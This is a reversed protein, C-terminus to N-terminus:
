PPNVPPPQDGAVLTANNQNRVMNLLGFKQMIAAILPHIPSNMPAAQAELAQNLLLPNQAAPPPPTAQAALLAQAIDDRM